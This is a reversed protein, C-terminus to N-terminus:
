AQSRHPFGDKHSPSRFPEPTLLQLLLSRRAVQQTSSTAPPEPPRYRCLQFKIFM